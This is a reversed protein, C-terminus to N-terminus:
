RDSDSKTQLLRKRFVTPTVGTAQLFSRNFASKSNFGCAMAISLFGREPEAQIYGRAADVRLANVYNKFSRGMGSNVVESVQHVTLSLARAVDAIRFDEDLYPREREMWDAIRRLVVDADLGGLRSRRVRSAEQHLAQRVDPYRASVFYQLLVTASLSVLASWMMAHLVGHSIQFAGLLQQNFFLLASLAGLAWLLFAARTVPKQFSSRDFTRWLVAGAAALYGALILCAILVLLYVGLFAGEIELVSLGAILLAPAFHLWISPSLRQRGVLFLGRFYLWVLPGIAAVVPLQVLHLPSDAPVVDAHLAASLGLIVAVSAHALCAVVTRSKEFPDIRLPLRAIESVVLLLATVASFAVLATLVREAM